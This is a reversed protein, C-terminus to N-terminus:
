ALDERWLEVVSGDSGPGVPVGGSKMLSRAASKSGMKRIVDGSPGIFQIATAACASLQRCHPLLRM